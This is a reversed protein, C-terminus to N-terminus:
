IIDRAIGTGAKAILMAVRKHHAYGLSAPFPLLELRRALQTQWHQETTLVDGYWAAKM